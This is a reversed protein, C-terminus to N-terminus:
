MYKFCIGAETKCKSSNMNWSSIIAYGVGQRAETKLGKIRLRWLGLLKWDEDMNLEKGLKGYDSVGTSARQRENM